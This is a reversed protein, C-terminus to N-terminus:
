PNLPGFGVNALHTFQLAISRTEMEHFHVISPSPGIISSGDTISSMRPTRRRDLVFEQSNIISQGSVRKHSQMIDSRLFTEM